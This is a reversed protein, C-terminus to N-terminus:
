ISQELRRSEHSNNMEVQKLMRKVCREKRKAKIGIWIFFGSFLLVVVLPLMTVIDSFAIMREASFIFVVIGLTIISLLAGFFFFPGGHSRAISKVDQSLNIYGYGILVNSQPDQFGAIAISDGQNM